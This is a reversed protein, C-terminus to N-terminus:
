DRKIIYAGRGVIMIHECVEQIRAYELYRYTKEIGDNTSKKHPHSLHHIRRLKGNPKLVFGLLSSIFPAKPRCQEVRGLRLDEQLTKTMKDADLFTTELNKSITLSPPGNFGLLCGYLIMSDILHPLDGPYGLLLM